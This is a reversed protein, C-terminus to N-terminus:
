EDVVEAIEVVGGGDDEEDAGAKRQELKLREAAIEMASREQATPLDYLNRLLAVMDRMAATMDKVARVSNVAERGDVMATVIEVMKDAADRMKTFATAGDRADDTAVEQLFAANKAGRHHMRAIQWGDRKAYNYVTRLAAGYKEAIDRYSMETSVYEAKIADWDLM